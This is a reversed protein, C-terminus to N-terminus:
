WILGNPSHTQFCGPLGKLQLCLFNPHKPIEAYQYNLMDMAQATVGTLMPVLRDAEVQVRTPTGRGRLRWTRLQM